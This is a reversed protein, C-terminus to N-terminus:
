VGASVPESRTGFARAFQGLLFALVHGITLAFVITGFGITGGLLAGVIMIIIEVTIRVRAIPVNLRKGLGTMLGDRPGPGLHTSLYIAGGVAVVVIGVVVFGVRTVMSDPEPIRDKTHVITTGIVVANAITGIGPRERIPIWCGLVAFSIVVTAWGISLPSRDAIGEAFTTWPSNGLRSNILLVDGIAFIILGGVLLVMATPNPAWRTPASWPFTPVERATRKAM